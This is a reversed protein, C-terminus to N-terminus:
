SCSNPIFHASWDGGAGNVICNWTGNADRQLTITTGQIGTSADGDLTAVITSNAPNAFSGFTVSSINSDVFSVEGEADAALAAIRGNALNNEIATRYGSIESFVRAVQSRAVFRSYAPLATAALVGIIAIVVMLEILTFGRCRYRGISARHRAQRAPLSMHMKRPEPDTIRLETKPIIVVPRFESALLAMFHFFPGRCRM